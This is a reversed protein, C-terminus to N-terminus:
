HEAHRFFSCHFMGMFILDYGSAMKEVADVALQGNEASDLAELNRKKMFTLMLNLNISNDDVVLVRARRPEAPGSAKVELEPQKQQHQEPIVDSESVLEPERPSRQFPSPPSVITTMPQDIEQSPSQAGM